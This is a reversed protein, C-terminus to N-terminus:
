LHEYGDRRKGGAGKGAAGAAEGSDRVAGHEGPDSTSSREGSEPQPAPPQDPPEGASENM